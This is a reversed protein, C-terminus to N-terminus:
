TNSKSHFKLGSTHTTPKPTPATQANTPPHTPNRLTSFCGGKCVNRLAQPNTPKRQQHQPKTNRSAIRTDSRPSQGPSAGAPWESEKSRWLFYAFFPSRPSSGGEPTGSFALSLAPLSIVRGRQARLEFLNRKKKRKAARKKPLECHFPVFGFALDFGLLLILCCFCFWRCGDGHRKQNIEFLM